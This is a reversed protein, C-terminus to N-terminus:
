FSTARLSNVRAHLPTKQLILMGYEATGRKRLAHATTAISLFSAASERLKPQTWDIWRLVSAFKLVFHAIRWGQRWFPLVEATLDRDELLTFNLDTALQIWQKKSCMQRIRFGAEALQMALQQETSSNEYNPSRFGDIIVIRGQKSLRSYAQTLFDRRQKPTDLHCLAEVSFILDFTNDHLSDLDTADCLSFDANNSESHQLNLKAIEIHRPVIDIAHFAIEPCLKALFLTCFGQGCGVELVNQARARGIEKLIIAPQAATSACVGLPAAFTLKSHMGPGQWTQLAKYDRESTQDYYTVVDQREFPVHLTQSLDYIQQIQELDQIWDRV